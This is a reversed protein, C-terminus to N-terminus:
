DNLFDTVTKEWQMEHGPLLPGHGAGEYVELRKGASKISSFIRDIEKKM